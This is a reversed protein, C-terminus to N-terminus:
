GRAADLTARLTRGLLGLLASRPLGLARGSDLATEAFAVYGRLATMRLAGPDPTSLHVLALKLALQDAAQGAIERIEPDPAAAAWRHIRWAHTPALAHDLMRPLPDSPGPEALDLQREAETLVALALDRRGRPFYHYLLNRTVGARASVAELPLESLGGRAAVPM